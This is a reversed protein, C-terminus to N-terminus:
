PTVAAPHLHSRVKTLLEARDLPKTVYESCGSNYGEMMDPVAGRTTVMIVPIDRLDDDARLARLVEFGSMRPMTVDLLVLDPREARAVRIGEEGDTAVVIEYQDEELIMRQWLIATPSDDVLLIKKNM